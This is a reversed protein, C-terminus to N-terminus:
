LALYGGFVCHDSRSIHYGFQPSNVVDVAHSASFQMPPLVGPRHYSAVTGCGLVPTAHKLTKFCAGDAYTNFFSRSTTYSFKTTQVPTRAGDMSYNETAEASKSKHM